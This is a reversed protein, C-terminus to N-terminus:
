LSITHGRTSMRGNEQHPEIKSYRLCFPSLSRLRDWNLCGRNGGNETSSGVSEVGGNEDLDLLKMRCVPCSNHLRLWPLICDSHYLHKRPLVRVETGIELEEKCVPCHLSGKAVHAKSLKVTPLAKIAEEPAPPPGPQMHEISALLVTSEFELKRGDLGVYGCRVSVM